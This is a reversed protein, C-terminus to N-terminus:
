ILAELRKTNHDLQKTIQIIQSIGNGEITIQINGWDHLVKANKLWPRGLMMYYSGDGDNQKLIM